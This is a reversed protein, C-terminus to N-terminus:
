ESRGPPIAWGSYMVWRSTAMPEFPQFACALLEWGKVKYRERLWQFPDEHDAPALPYVPIADGPVGKPRRLKPTM